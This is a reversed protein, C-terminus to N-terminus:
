LFVPNAFCEAAMENNNGWRFITSGFHNWGMRRYLRIADQDKVLAFLLLRQGTRRSEEIVTEILRSAVGGRRSEPHVFLRGLVAIDIDEPYRQKWLAVAVNESSAKTLSIHGVVMGNVEAVWATENKTFFSVSNNVGGVPYGTSKYVADLIRLCTPIDSDERPRITAMM